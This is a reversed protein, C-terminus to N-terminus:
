ELCLTCCNSTQRVNVTGEDVKGADRQTGEDVLVQAYQGLLERLGLEELGDGGCADWVVWVSVQGGDEDVKLSLHLRLENAWKHESSHVEFNITPQSKYESFSKLCVSSIKLAMM